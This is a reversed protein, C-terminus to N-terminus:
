LKEVKKYPTKQSVVEEIRLQDYRHVRDVSIPNHRNYIYLVDNILGVKEKGCMEVMPYMMARDFTCKYFHGDADLLDEKKIKCFLEKRFTRLHSFSWPVKRINQSWYQDTVNPSVIMYNDNQMYSGVTMWCDRTSYFIDLKDFVDTGALADDGDLTVIVSNNEARHIQTYLNYLAKMNQSNSVIEYEVGSKSLTNEAIVCTQDTSCDDVYIIKYNEYKQNLVSKLNWEVWNECNYAPIIVTFHTNTM